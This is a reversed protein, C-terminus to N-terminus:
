GGPEIKKPQIWFECLSRIELVTPEPLGIEASRQFNFPADAPKYTSNSESCPM